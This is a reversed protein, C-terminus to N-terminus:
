NRFRGVKYNAHDFDKPLESERGLALMALIYGSAPAHKFGSGSFGVGVFTRKFGERKDIIPYRDPTVTYMCREEIAPRSADM